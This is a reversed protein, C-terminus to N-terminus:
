MKKTNQEAIQRLEMHQTLLRGLRLEESEEDNNEDLEENLQNLSEAEDIWGNLSRRGNTLKTLTSEPTVATVYATPSHKKYEKLELVRQFDKKYDSIFLGYAGIYESHIFFDDNDTEAAKGKKEPLRPKQRYNRTEKNSKRMIRMHTMENLWDNLRNRWISISEQPCNGENEFCKIEFLADNIYKRPVDPPETREGFVNKLVQQFETWTYECERPM